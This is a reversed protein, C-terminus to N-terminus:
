GGILRLSLLLTDENKINNQNITTHDRLIVGRFILRQYHPALYFEKEIQKKLNAILENPNTYVTIIRDDLYKVFIKM